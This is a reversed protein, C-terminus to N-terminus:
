YWIGRLNRAMDKSGDGQVGKKISDLEGDTLTYGGNKITAEPDSILQKRFEEDLVARGILKQLDESTDKM